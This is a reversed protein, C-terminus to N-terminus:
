IYDIPEDTDHIADGVNDDVPDGINSKFMNQKVHFPIPGLVSAINFGEGLDIGKM